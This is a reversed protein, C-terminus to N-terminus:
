FFALRGFLGKANKVCLGRFHKDALTHLTPGEIAAAINIVAEANINTALSNLVDALFINADFVAIIQEALPFSFTFAKTVMLIVPAHPILFNSHVGCFAITTENLNAILTQAIPIAISPSLM